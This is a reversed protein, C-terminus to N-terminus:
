SSNEDIKSFHFNDHFVAAIAIGGIKDKPSGM